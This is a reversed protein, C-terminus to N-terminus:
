RLDTVACCVQTACFKLVHKMQCRSTRSHQVSFCVGDVHRFFSNYIDVLLISLMPADCRAQHLVSFFAMQEECHHQCRMYAISRRLSFARTFIVAAFIQNVTSCFTQYSQLHLSHFALYHEIRLQSPLLKSPAHSM